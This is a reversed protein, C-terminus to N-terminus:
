PLLFDWKPREASAALASADAEIAHGMAERGDFFFVFGLQADDRGLEKAFVRAIETPPQVSKGAVDVFPVRVGAGAHEADPEYAKM